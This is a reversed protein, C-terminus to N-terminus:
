LALHRLMALHMVHPEDDPNPWYGAEYKALFEQGSMNLHLRVLEDFLARQEEAPLEYDNDETEVAELAM